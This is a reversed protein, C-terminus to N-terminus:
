RSRLTQYSHCNSVTMLYDNYLNFFLRNSVEEDDVTYEELQYSDPSIEQSLVELLNADIRIFHIESLTTATAQRIDHEGALPKRAENTNSRIEESRNDLYDLRVSGQLLYYIWNDRRGRIFLRRGAPQTEIHIKTALEEFAQPSLNAINGLGQLTQRSVTESTPPM